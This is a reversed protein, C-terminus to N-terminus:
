PEAPEESDSSLENPWDAALGLVQTLPQGPIHLVQDGDLIVQSFPLADHPLPVVAWPNHYLVMQSQSPLAPHFAGILAGSVRKNVSHKHPAFHGDSMRVLVAQTDSDQQVVEFGFAAEFAERSEFGWETTANIAIVFPFGLKGYKMTKKELSRRISPVSDGWKSVFPYVGISRRGPKGRAEAPKPILEVELVTGNDRHKASPLDSLGSHALAISAASWDANALTRQVFDRIRKLSPSKDALLELRVIRIYFDPSDIGEIDAYIQQAHSDRGREEDSRDTALTAEIFLTDVGRTARFDPVTSVGPIEPEVDVVYGSRLLAEHLMLEFVAADFDTHFRNNLAIRKDSPFRSFWDEILERVAAVHRRSSRDYFDFLPEQHRKPASDVRSTDSFILM